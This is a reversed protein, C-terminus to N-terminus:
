SSRTRRLLGFVGLVARRKLEALRQDEDAATWELWNERPLPVGRDKLKRDDSVESLKLSVTARVPRMQANFMTVKFSLSEIVCRFGPIPGNLMELVPPQREEKKTSSPDPAMAMTTLTEFDDDLSESGLEYCDFLLDLSMARAKGSTFEHAPANAGATPTKEWGVTKEIQVEAPNFQARVEAGSELAVLALRQQDNLNRAFTRRNM